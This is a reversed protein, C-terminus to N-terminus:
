NSRDSEGVGRQALRLVADVVHESENGLENDCLDVSSLGGLTYCYPSPQVHHLSVKLWKSFHCICTRQQHKMSKKMNQVALIHKSLFRPTAGVRERHHNPIQSVEAGFRERGNM